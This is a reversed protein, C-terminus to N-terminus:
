VVYALGIIVAVAAALILWARGTMKPQSAHAAIRPANAAAGTPLANPASGDGEPIVVNLERRQVEAIVIQRGEDNLSHWKTVADVIAEDDATRWLDLLSVSM